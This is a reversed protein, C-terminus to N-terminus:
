ERVVVAVQGLQQFLANLMRKGLAVHHQGGHLGRHGGRQQSAVRLRLREISAKMLIAWAYSTLPCRLLTGRIRHESSGCASTSLFVSSDRDPGQLLPM